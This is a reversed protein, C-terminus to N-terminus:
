TPPVPDPTEAPPRRRYVLVVAVVVAVVVLAGVAGYLVAPSPGAAPTVTVTLNAAVSVGRSDTVHVQVVWTGVETPLCALSDNDVSACGPPLGTYSFTRDGIGGSLNTGILLSTGLPVTTRSWIFFDEVALAPVVTFTTSAQATEQTSDILEIQVAHAGLAVGTCVMPSTTGSSCGAPLTSFNTVYPGSGGVITWAITESEGVEVEAYAVSLLVGPDPNVTLTGNAIARLGLSDTVVANFSFVGAATPFCDLTSLLSACGPPLDDYSYTYGERGGFVSVSLNWPQGLDIATASTEVSAELQTYVHVIETTNGSQGNADTVNLAIEYTGADLMRCSFNGSPTASCGPPLNSFVYTMPGVGGFTQTTFQVTQNVETTSASVGLVPLPRDTFVWEYIVPWTSPNVSSFV